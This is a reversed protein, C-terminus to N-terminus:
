QSSSVVPQSCLLTTSSSSTIAEEQFNSKLGGPLTTFFGSVLSLTFIGSVILFYAIKTAINKRPTRASQQKNFHKDLRLGSCCLGISSTLSHVVGLFSVEITTSLNSFSFEISAQHTRNGEAYMRQILSLEIINKM